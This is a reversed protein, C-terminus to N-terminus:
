RRIVPLFIRTITTPQPSTTVPNTQVALSEGNLGGLSVDQLRVAATGASADGQLSLELSGLQGDALPTMPLSLAILSVQLLRAEADYAV